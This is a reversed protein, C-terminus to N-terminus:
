KHSQINKGYFNNIFRFYINPVGIIMIVDVAYKKKKFSQM